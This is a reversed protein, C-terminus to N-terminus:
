EGTEPGTAAATKIGAEAAALNRTTRALRLALERIVRLALAPEERILGLFADGPIRLLSLHGAARVGATRPLECFVSMEGFLAHRELQAVVVSGEGTKMIVDASGALIFYVDTGSAGQEFVMDGSEFELRESVYALLKLKGEAMTEFFPVTRLRAVEDDITDTM